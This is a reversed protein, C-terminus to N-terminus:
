PTQRGILTLYTSELSPEQVTVEALGVGSEAAARNLSAAIRRADTCSVAVAVADGHVRADKASRKALDLLTPLDALSEPRLLVVSEASAATSTSGCYRLRGADMMVLWNCVQQVEGLLHSSVLVTRDAATISGILERVDSMGEPDLGNTPEDLILLEPDGLLAAAIGLRQKMGLSYRGFRDESRDALGVTELIQPIRGADHGGLRALVRMNERGTLGPWLAPTELLAGVRNLYREPRSIPEGLVTAEGSTPRVLGLLMAMTSTKGAGNPGIFGITAGRPLDFTLDEVAARDGYRKSLGVTHVVSDSLPM